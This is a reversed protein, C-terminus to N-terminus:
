RACQIFGGGPSAANQQYRTFCCCVVSTYDIIMGIIIISCVIM